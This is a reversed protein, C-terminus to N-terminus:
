LCSSLCGQDADQAAPHDGGGAQRTRPELPTPVARMDWATIKMQIDRGVTEGKKEGFFCTEEPLESLPTILPLPCFLAAWLLVAKRSTIAGAGGRGSKDAWNSSIIPLSAACRTDGARARVRIVATM